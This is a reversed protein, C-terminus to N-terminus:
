RLGKWKRWRILLTQKAETSLKRFCKNATTLEPFVYETMEEWLSGYYWSNGCTFADRIEVCVNCVHHISWGQQDTADGWYEMRGIAHEHSEGKPIIGACEYCKVPRKARKGEVTSYEAYTEDLSDTGICVGCDTV